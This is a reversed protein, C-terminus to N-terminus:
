ALQAGAADVAPLRQGDGPRLRLDVAPPPHLVAEHQGDGGGRGGRRRAREASPSAAARALSRRCCARVAPRRGAPAHLVRRRLLPPRPEEFESFPHMVLGCDLRRAGVSPASASDASRARPRTATTPASPQTACCRRRALGFRLRPRRASPVLRATATREGDTVTLTLRHDGPPPRRPLTVHGGGAVATFDVRLAGVTLRAPGALTSRYSIRGAALTRYTAPTIAALARGAARPGVIRVLNAVGSDGAPDTDTLWGEARAFARAVFRGRLLPATGDALVLEGAAVARARSRARARAPLPWRRRQGSGLRPRLYLVSGCVDAM